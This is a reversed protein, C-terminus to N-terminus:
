KNYILLYHVQNKYGLSHPQMVFDILILIALNFPQNPLQTHVPLAM